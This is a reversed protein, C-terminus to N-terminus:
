AAPVTSALRPDSDVKEAQQLKGAREELMHQFAPSPVPHGFLWGQAYVQQKAQAFYRAQQPTEIGEVIVRLGLTAAMTLIQPLISVTVADTGIARTFAKDIKVADVSLDHLYALSSYGTGFDDIHVVHGRKRLQLITEKAVQQRATYSETIEVGLSTAAVNAEALMKELMPVFNPDALDAAAINVNVRFGPRERLVTGFDRLVHRVVLKTIEGVFGRKEAVKVFDDPSVVLNDENTWRCLAEAEVIKGSELDVIPQYVVTLADRRIARLLQHEFGQKRRHVIVCFLGLLLGTLSGVATFGILEIRNNQMAQALPLYAAACVMGDPSCYTGYLMPGVRYQGPKVLFAGEQKLPQGLLQGAQRTPADLDTVIFPTINSILPKMNYPNYVIFSSGLRISIVTEDGMRFPALNRYMFTGDRQAFDPKYRANSQAARGLYTSCEIAGDRMRGSAKLYQSEYILKRFYAIEADSCAPYPSANMEALVKRAEVTSHQGENIVRLAFQELRNEAQKLTILRGLLYGELSGGGIGLAIALLAFGVRQKIKPM